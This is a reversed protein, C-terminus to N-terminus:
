LNSRRIADRIFEEAAPINTFSMGGLESLREEEKEFDLPGVSQHIAFAKHRFWVLNWGGTSSILHPPSICSMKYVSEPDNCFVTNDSVFEPHVTPDFDVIISRMHSKEMRLGYKEGWSNVFLDLDEPLCNEGAKRADLATIEVIKKSTFECRGGVSWLRLGFDPDTFDKKYRSDFYGFNRADTTKMFSFAPFYIGFATGVYGHHLGLCFMGSTHPARKHYTDLAHEDWGELYDCDDATPTIFDGTAIQAATAHAAACGRKAKEQVWIITQNPKMEFDFPEINPTVVIVEVPNITTDRINALLRRLDDQYISPLTISIKM